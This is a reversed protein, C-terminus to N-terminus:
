KKRGSFITLLNGVNSIDKTTLPYTFVIRPPLARIFNISELLQFFSERPSLNSTDLVLDVTDRSYIKINKTKHFKMSRLLDQKLSSFQSIFEPSLDPVSLTYAEEIQTLFEDRSLNGLDSGKDERTKPRYFETFNWCASLCFRYENPDKKLLAKFSREQTRRILQPLSCYILVRLPKVEEFISLDKEYSIRDFIVNRGLCLFPMARQLLARNINQFIDRDYITELQELANLFEEKNRIDQLIKKMLLSERNMGLLGLFSNGVVDYVKEFENKKRNLFFDRAIEIYISRMSIFIATTDHDVLEQALYSKGSSNVGSMIILRRPAPEHYIPFLRREIVQLKFSEREKEEYFIETLKHVTQPSSYLILDTCETASASSRTIVLVTLLIALFM